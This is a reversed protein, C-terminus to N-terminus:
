TLKKTLCKRLFIHELYQFLIKRQLINNCIDLFIGSFDLLSHQNRFTQSQLLHLSHCKFKKFFGHCKPQPVKRNNQYKATGPQWAEDIRTGKVYYAAGNNEPSRSKRVLRFKPQIESFKLQMRRSKLVFQNCFTKLVTILVIGNRSLPLCAGFQRFPSRISLIVAVYIFTFVCIASCCFCRIDRRLLVM